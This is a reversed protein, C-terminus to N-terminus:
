PRVSDCNREDWITRALAEHAEHVLEQLDPPLSIRGDEDALEIATLLHDLWHWGSMETPRKM